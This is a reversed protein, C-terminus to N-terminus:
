PMLYLLPFILIWLLDVMHWYIASLEFNNVQEATASETPRFTFYLYGLVGLGTVLHMFHIGTLLYYFMFFDNSEFSIGANIKEHYEFVKLISFAAGCLFAGGTLHRCLRIEGKRLAAVAIVILWSSALLLLTNISGYHLNLLAQSQQYLELNSNRFYIYMCFFMSFVSMDGLVFVWITENAPLDEAEARANANLKMPLTTDNITM